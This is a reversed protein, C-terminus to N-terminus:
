EFEEPTYNECNDELEGDEATANGRFAMGPEEYALSFVLKPFLESIKMLFAIPPSWPSDFTYVLKSNTDQSLVANVDWKIGWNRVQWDYWNDAGFKKILENSMKKTIPLGIQFDPNKAEEKAKEVEKKYDKESVIQVPSRTDKLEKPLPFFNSISLDTKYEGGERKAQKKFKNLEAKSGKVTLTNECWNPM